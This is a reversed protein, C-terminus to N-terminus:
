RGATSSAGVSAGFDTSTVEDDTLDPVLARIDDLGDYAVRMLGATFASNGGALEAPAAELVTVDAGADRAAIAACLGANGGGVVIM